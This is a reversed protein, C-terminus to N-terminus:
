KKPKAGELMSKAESISIKKGTLPFDLPDGNPQFGNDDVDVYIPNHYAFPKMSAYASTGFGTQLTSHEGCAVVILHADKELPISVTRDFKLIGNQFFDPHSQRTFNLAAPMRGNVLIQVRDIDIWDTCQVQIHLSVSGNKPRVTSGPRGGDATTVQLFPGSTLYSVGAKASRVNERWDIKSPEDSASPMYMRWCGVGNGYVSHADAVAMAATRRGQNLMQLWLFERKWSVTESGAAGRAISFPLGDLLATGLGNQTEYGDIMTVLGAYGLEREGTARDEFFNAFVDPHNIQVWRDSEIKQWERLNIATLRPDANWVPAGNDQTFPVLTFPFANFHAKNGTNEIGVVTQLFPSLGLREIDARWDFIRNHETTPAFEIHEAALNILRDATGCVNDGSPTSHNHYDASVWGHTDVLRKLVGAIRTTKGAEILVEKELHAYEIGRTVVIRYRGPPIPVEFKGNENHYQDRCGHARQDPGLNVPETGELALFQAKCPLSVGSEDTVEFAVLGAPALKFQAPTSTGEQCEVELEVNPRGPALATLQYRGPSLHCQFRGSDDPYAVGALRGQADPNNTAAKSSPTAQTPVTVSFKPRIQLSAARVPKGESDLISGSLTSCSGKQAMVVGVAEAPSNGVALFRTYTVSEGPALDSPARKLANSPDSLPGVAYGCRDAPDVADAWLIGGPAFGTKLFNTWRDQFSTKLPNSSENKLTTTIKLGQWGDRLTYVHHRSIGGNSNATVVCEVAAESDSGSPPVIRVWSVPGQQFAPTFVTIQDNNQGRLTLDYLCGPTIGDAGYFTSMNARRLPLNGSIVAEIRDNRLLFDGIIADAEKGRPLLSTTEKSVEIAEPKASLTIPLLLACLLSSAGLRLPHRPTNM